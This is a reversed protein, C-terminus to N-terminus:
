RVLVRHSFRMTPQEIILRMRQKNSSQQLSSFLLTRTDHEFINLMFYALCRLPTCLYLCSCSLVNNGKCCQKHTNIYNHCLSTIQNVGVCFRLLCHQTNNNAVASAAFFM